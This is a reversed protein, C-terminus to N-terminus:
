ECCQVMCDQYATGCDNGGNQECDHMNDDCALECASRSHGCASTHSGTDQGTNPDRVTCFDWCDEGNYRCDDYCSSRQDYCYPDSQGSIAQCYDFMQDCNYACSAYTFDCSECTAALARQAWNTSLLVVCASLFCLVTLRRLITFM